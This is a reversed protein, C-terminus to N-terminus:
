RGVQRVSHDTWRPLWAVRVASPAGFGPSGGRDKLRPQMVVPACRHRHARRGGPRDHDGAAVVRHHSHPVQVGSSQQVVWQFGVLALHVRDRHPVQAPPRDRHRAAVVTRHPHPVQERSSRQARRKHAVVALDQRHGHALQPAPRDRHGAAVVIRHPHPVQVGPLQHVLRHTGFVEDAEHSRPMSM